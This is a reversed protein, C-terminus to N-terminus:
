EVTSSNLPAAEDAGEFLNPYTLAALSFFTLMTALFFMSGLLHSVNCGRHLIFGAVALWWIYIALMILNALLMGAVLLQLPLLLASMITSTGLLAAFTQLGRSPLIQKIYLLLTLFVSIVGLDLALVVLIEGSNLPSAPVLLWSFAGLLLYVAVIMLLFAPKAPLGEPGRRFLCIDWFYQVIQLFIQLFIPYMRSATTAIWVNSFTCSPSLTVSNPVQRCGPSELM